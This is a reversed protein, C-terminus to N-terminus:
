VRNNKVLQARHVLYFRRNKSMGVLLPAGWKYPVTYRIFRKCIFKKAKEKPGYEMPVALTQM